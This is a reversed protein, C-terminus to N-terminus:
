YLEIETLDDLTLKVSPIDWDLIKKELTINVTENEKSNINKDETNNMNDIQKSNENIEQEFVKEELFNDKLFKELVKKYGVVIHENTDRICGSIKIENNERELYLNFFDSLDENLVIIVISFNKDINSIFKKNNLINAFFTESLELNDCKFRVRQRENQSLLNQENLFDNLAKLLDISIKNCDVRYERTYKIGQEM